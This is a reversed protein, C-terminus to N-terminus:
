EAAPGSRGFTRWYQRRKEDRVVVGLRALEERLERVDGDSPGKKELAGQRAHLFANAAQPLEPTDPVWRRFESKHPDADAWAYGHGTFAEAVRGADLECLERSLEGGDHGLLVLYKGDRCVTAVADHPLEQDRGKRGLVVSEDSLRVVLEEHQAILGVVLGAVSGVVPLVPGPISALLRAPGQLPAWPLTVLWDALLGVLRGAVAGALVLVVYVGATGWASRGLVTRQAAKPDREPIKGMDM